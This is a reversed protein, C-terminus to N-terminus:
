FRLTVLAVISVSHPFIAGFWCLILSEPHNLPYLSFMGMIACVGPLTKLIDHTGYIYHRRHRCNRDFIISRISQGDKHYFSMTCLVRLILFYRWCWRSTHVWKAHKKQDRRCKQWGSHHISKRKSMTVTCGHRKEQLLTKWFNDDGNARDLLEQSVDDPNQKQDDTLLCPVFKAAICHM